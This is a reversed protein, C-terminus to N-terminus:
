PSGAPAAPQDLANLPEITLPQFHAEHVIRVQELTVRHRERMLRYAEEEGGYSDGGYYGGGGSGGFANDARHGSMQEQERQRQQRAARQGAEFGSDYRSSQQRRAARRGEEVGEHYERRKTPDSLM